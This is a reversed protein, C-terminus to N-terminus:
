LRDIVEKTISRVSGQCVDVFFQAYLLGDIFGALAERPLERAKALDEASMVPRLAFQVEHDHVIRAGNVREPERDLYEIIVDDIGYNHKISAAVRLHATDAIRQALEQPTIPETNVHYSAAYDKVPRWHM